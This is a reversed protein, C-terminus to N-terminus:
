KKNNIEIQIQNVCLFNPNYNIQNKKYALTNYM